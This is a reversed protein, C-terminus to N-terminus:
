KMIKTTVVEGNALTDVRIVIGSYTESVRMGELNYYM